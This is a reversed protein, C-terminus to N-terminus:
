LIWEGKFAAAKTTDTAVIKVAEASAFFPGKGCPIPVCNPNPPAPVARAMSELLASALGATKVRTSVWSEAKKM